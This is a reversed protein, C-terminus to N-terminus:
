PNIYSFMLETEEEAFKRASVELAQNYYEEFSEDSNNYNEANQAWQRATDYYFSQSEESTWDINDIVYYQCRHFYEHFLTNVCEEVSSNELITKNIWIEEKMVIYSGETYEDLEKAYLSVSPVGLKEAEIDILRGLIRIKKHLSYTCWDEENLYKIIDINAAYLDITNEGSEVMEGEESIAPCIPKNLKYVFVTLFTPVAFSVVLTRVM